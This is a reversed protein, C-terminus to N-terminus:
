RGPMVRHVYRCADEAGSRQLSGPGWEAPINRTCEQYTAYDEARFTPGSAATRVLVVVIIALVAGLIGATIWRSRNM